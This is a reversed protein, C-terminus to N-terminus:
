HKQHIQGMKQPFHCFHPKLVVCHETAYKLTVVCLSSLISSGLSGNHFRSIEDEQKTGDKHTCSFFRTLKEVRSEVRKHLFSHNESM